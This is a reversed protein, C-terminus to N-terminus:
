GSVYKQVLESLNESGAYFEEDLEKFADAEPSVQDLLINQRKAREMPPMGDPFKAAARKVIDATKSAGILELAEIIQPTRDAASNFFFQDFGGNNVEASLSVVLQEIQEKQM